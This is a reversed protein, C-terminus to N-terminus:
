IDGSIMTAQYAYGDKLALANIIPMTQTISWVGNEYIEEGNADKLNRLISDIQMKTQSEINLQGVFNVSVNCTIGQPVDAYDPINVNSGEAPPLLVYSYHDATFKYNKNTNTKM